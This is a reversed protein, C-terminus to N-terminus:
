FENEMFGINLVKSNETNKKNLSCVFGFDISLLMPFSGSINRGASM